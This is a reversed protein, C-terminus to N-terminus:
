RQFFYVRGLFIGIIPVMKYALSCTSTIESIIGAAFRKNGLTFGSVDPVPKRPVFNKFTTRPLGSM